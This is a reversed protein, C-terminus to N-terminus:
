NVTGSSSRNRCIAFKVVSSISSKSYRLLPTGRSTHASRIFMLVDVAFRSLRRTFAFIMRKHGYLTIYYICISYPRFTNNVICEIDGSFLDIIQRSRNSILYAISAIYDRFAFLFLFFPLLWTLGAVEKKEKKAVFQFYKKSVKRVQQRERGHAM